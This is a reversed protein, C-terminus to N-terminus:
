PGDLRHIRFGVLSEVGLEDAVKGLLYDGGVEFVRVARSLSGEFEVTGDVSVAMLATVPDGTASTVAWLLGDPDAFLHRYPPLAEPIPLPAHQQRQIEQARPNPSVTTIETLSSEFQAPTPTRGEVGVRAGGVLRGTLDRRDVWASDATGVWLAASGAAVGTQRGLPRNEGIPVVVTDSLATGERDMIWVPAAARRGDAGPPLYEIPLGLAGMWGATSCSLEWPAPEPRFDRVFTGSSDTVHVVRRTADWIFLSDTGCRNLWMINGFEGPGEGRRGVTRRVVGASDLLHLVAGYQDAIAFGGDSLGTAWRVSEITTGPSPEPGVVLFPEPDITISSEVPGEASPETCGIALSTLLAVPISWRM